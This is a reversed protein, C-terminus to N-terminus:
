SADSEVSLGDGDGVVAGVGLGVLLGVNFGVLAGVGNRVGLRVGAGVIAGAPVVPLVVVHPSEVSAYGTAEAGAM